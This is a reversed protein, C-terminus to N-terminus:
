EEVIELFLFTAKLESIYNKFESMKIDNKDKPMGVVLVILNNNKYRKKLYLYTQGIAREFAVANVLSSWKKVEIGVQEDFLDIDVRLSYESGIKYEKRIDNSAIHNKFHDIICNTLHAEDKEYNFAKIKCSKILEIVNQITVSSKTVYQREINSQNKSNLEKIEVGKPEAILSKQLSETNINEPNIISKEDKVKSKFEEYLLDKIQFILQDKTRNSYPLELFINIDILIDKNANDLILDINKTKNIQIINEIISKKTKIVSNDDIGIKNALLKLDDKQISNLINYIYEKNTM